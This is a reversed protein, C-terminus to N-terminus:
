FLDCGQLKFSEIAEKLKKQTVNLDKSICKMCKFDEINRGYYKLSLGVDNKKLTKGCESCNKNFYKKAIEYDLNQQKSFELIVEENAKEHVRGGNWNQHYEELSCNMVPAKKNNIFDEELIRHWNDYLPKYWYEDLVWTSKTYFPCIISCGCRTYGKRYKTNFDIDNMLIYLWVDEESWKRIPLVGQWKDSWKNNNWYDGYNSRTNSEQNRMGLFLLIPQEKDLYDIMSQEKFIGCCARSTRTPIFNQEKMWKYIGGKKPNIIEIGQQKKIYKYTDAVDCTTNNFLLRYDKIVKNVLFRTVTSDKGGSFPVAYNKIQPFKEISEKILDISEQEIKLLEEKRRNLTDTWSEKEFEDEDYAKFKITLDDQIHLRVIKHLIGKTDYAKIISKDYWYYGEKLDIGTEKKLGKDNLFNIYQKFVLNLNRM